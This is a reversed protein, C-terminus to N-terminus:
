CELIAEVIRKFTSMGEAFIVGGFENYIKIAKEAFGCRLFCNVSSSPLHLTERRLSYHHGPAYLQLNFNLYSPAIGHIVKHAMLALRYKYLAAINLWGLRQRLMRVSCFKPLGYIIRIGFNQLRQFSEIVSQRHGFVPLCYCLLSNVYSNVLMIKAVRPLKFRNKSLTRLFGTVKCSISTVHSQFTMHSDFLVGLLRLVTSLQVTVGHLQIEQPLYQHFFNSSFAALKTKEANLKMLNAAAWRNVSEFDQQLLQIASNVNYPDADLALITDDAYASLECSCCANQMDATYLIFLIPGLISGQPVGCAVPLQGSTVSNVRTRQIRGSLYSQFLAVISCGFGLRRLKSLLIEHDVTDFAKSFDLSLVVRIKKESMANFIGQSFHLLATETSYNRRFGSQRSPLLDNAEIYTIVQFYILKEILKGFLSLLSIPRYNGEKERDGSKFIPTIVSEKWVSPFCAQEIISNAIHCLSHRIVPLADVIFRKCVQDIGPANGCLQSVAIDIDGVDVANLSFDLDLSPSMFDRFSLGSADSSRAAAATKPGVTAFHLNLRDADFAIHDSVEAIGAADKACKWLKSANGAAQQIVTCANNAALYRLRRKAARRYYSFQNYHAQLRTNSFLWRYYGKVAVLHELYADVFRKRKRKADAKVQVRPAHADLCRVFLDHFLRVKENVDAIDYIHHLPAWALSLM